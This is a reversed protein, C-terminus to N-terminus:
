QRRQAIYYLVLSVSVLKQKAETVITYRRKRPALFFPSTVDSYSSFPLENRHIVCHVSGLGVM